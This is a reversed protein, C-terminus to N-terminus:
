YGIATVIHTKHPAQSPAGAQLTVVEVRAVGPAVVGPELEVVVSASDSFLREVVEPSALGELGRPDVRASLLLTSDRLEVVPESIGAPLLPEARYTLLSQIEAQSLELGAGQQFISYALNGSGDVAPNAASMLRCKVDDPTLSPNAQLMLAVIGSTVATAQSTGSMVFYNGSERYEIHDIAIQSGVDLIGVVHGGPAVIEPKVFGEYTPGAASFSALRDDSLDAPTHNDTM